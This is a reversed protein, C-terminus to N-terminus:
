ILGDKQAYITSLVVYVRISSYVLGYAHTHFIRAMWSPSLFVQDNRMRPAYEMAGEGVLECCDVRPLIQPV